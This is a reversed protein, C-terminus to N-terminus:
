YRWMMPLDRSLEVPYWDRGHASKESEPPLCVFHPRPKKNKALSDFYEAIQWCRVKFGLYREVNDVDSGNVAFEVAGYPGWWGTIGESVKAWALSWRPFVPATNCM